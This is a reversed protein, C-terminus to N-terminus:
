RWSIYLIDGDYVSTQDVKFGEQELQKVIEIVVANTLLNYKKWDVKYNLNDEGRNAYREIRWDIEKRERFAIEKVRREEDSQAEDKLRKIEAESSVTLILAQEASLM